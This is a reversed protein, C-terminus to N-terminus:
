KETKRTSHQLLAQDKERWISDLWHQIEQRATPDHEYQDFPLNPPIVCQEVAVDIPGATGCLFAFLTPMPTTYHITVDLLADLQGSLTSIVMAAGGGKPQLLRQYKAGQAQRKTETFRTGELFNLVSVPARQFRRCARRTTALDVAQLEPHQTLFAKSYRKMVPFDLVWWAIGLLPVYLLSQKIFFKLMPIRRNFVYQLILIDIWSQHNCFVLYWRDTALGTLKLSTHLSLVRFRDLLFNNWGIWGEAINMGRGTCWIDIRGPGVFRIFAALYLPICWFVTNICILLLLTAGRLLAIM